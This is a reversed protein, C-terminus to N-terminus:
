RNLRIVVDDVQVGGRDVVLNQYSRQGDMTQASVDQVEAAFRRRLYTTLEGATIIDDGDLNAEGALALRLFHSLYGGAQFKGAVQSTLDEESSFLGIVGPRSVVNRAFGGSFCSDLVILSMRTNLTGFMQAMEADSIQGDRLVITEAMGDLELSSVQSRAQSGHGSYFFLFIDDPGAQAAVQAFARKVGGVTAEADTLVISAPNLVGERRLAEALKLADDATYMLDGHGGYDSIGVMVAFVRPGSQVGAQRPTGFSPGATLRYAGTEGPAYSTVGVTYEGDAPLTVDIRSNTGDPGDDNNEGFGNPGSLILYTDFQSSEAAIAVREGRRGVFTYSDIYEGSNLTADGSALSGRLEAGDGFARGRSTSAPQVGAGGSVRNATLRFSGTEGAAYSTAVVQYDGDAPLTVTLRSNVGDEGSPDDDNADAFDGPGTIFVYPDFQSSALRLEIQDGARGRLTFVQMYEGSRLTQDGDSLRGNLSQGIQLTGGSQLAGGSSGGGTETVTLAYAGTEGPQYSTAIIMAEGDAPMVFELMSNRSGRGGPEDDNDESLNAGRVMLYPDFATSNLRVAYRTGPRGTLTWGDVYEGTAIQTDGTSLRGSNSEGLRVAGGGESGAFAAQGESLTIRYDGTEGPQYSTAQIRYTGSAPLRVSVQADTTGGGPRDDNEEAFGSPGRLMVYADFQRSTMDITVQQGARGEFTLVDVYEGSTLTSDGSELRGSVSGGIRLASSSVPVSGSSGQRLSLSYRGSEGPAYSTVQLRYTGSEPLTIAIQANTSGGSPADDNDESVGGPGRLMLYTDFASSAADIVVTQGARGQFTYFDYYEGSDLTSDGQRLEGSVTAGIQIAQQAWAAPAGCLVTLVGLWMLAATLSKVIQRSM